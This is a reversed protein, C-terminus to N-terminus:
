FESSLDDIDVPPAWANEADKSVRGNRQIQQRFFEVTLHSLQCSAADDFDMCDICDFDSATSDAARLSERAHREQGPGPRAVFGPCCGDRSGGHLDNTRGTLGHAVHEVCARTPTDFRHHM